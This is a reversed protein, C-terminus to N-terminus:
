EQTSKLLAQLKRWIEVYYKTTASNELMVKIRFEEKTMTGLYVSRQAIMLGDLHMMKTRLKEEETLDGASIIDMIPILTKETYSQIEEAVSPNKEQDM